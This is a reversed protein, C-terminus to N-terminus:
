LQKVCAFFLHPLLYSISIGLSRICRFCGLAQAKPLHSEPGTVIDLVLVSCKLIFSICAWLLLLTIAAAKEGFQGRNVNLYSNQNTKKRNTKKKPTQERPLHQIHGLSLCQLKKMTQFHNPNQSTPMSVLRQCQTSQRRVGNRAWLRGLTM